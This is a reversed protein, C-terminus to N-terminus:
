NDNNQAFILSGHSGINPTKEPTSSPQYTVIKDNHYWVLFYGSGAVVFHRDHLNYTDGRLPIQDGFRMIAIPDTVSLRGIWARRDNKLLVRDPHWEVYQRTSGKPMKWGSTKIMGSASVPYRAKQAKVKDFVGIDDTGKKPPSTRSKNTPRRRAM